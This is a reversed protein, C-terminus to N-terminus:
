IGVVIKTKIIEKIMHSITQFPTPKHFDAFFLWGFHNMAIKINLVIPM